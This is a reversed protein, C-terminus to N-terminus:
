LSAKVICYCDEVMLLLSNQVAANFLSELLATFALSIQLNAFKRYKQFTNSEAIKIILPNVSWRRDLRFM